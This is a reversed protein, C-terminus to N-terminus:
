VQAGGGPCGRSRRRSIRSIGRRSRRRCCHNRHSGPQGPAPQESPFHHGGPPPRALRECEEPLACKDNESSSRRERLVSTASLRASQEDGRSVSSEGSSSGGNPLGDARSPTKRLSRPPPSCPPSEPALPAEGEYGIDGPGLLGEPGRVGEPMGLAEPRLPKPSIQALRSFAAASGGDLRGAGDGSERPGGAPSFRPSASVSRASDVRVSRGLQAARDAQRTAHMPCLTTHPEDLRVWFPVFYFRNSSKARM